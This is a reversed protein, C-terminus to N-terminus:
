TQIDNLLQATNRNAEADLIDRRTGGLAGFNVANAGRQSAAIDAQRQAERTAIDTVGQQYPSM